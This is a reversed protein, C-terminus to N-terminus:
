HRDDDKTFHEHKFRGFFGKSLEAHFTAEPTYVPLALLEAATHDTVVGAASISTVCDSTLVRQQGAVHIILGHFIDEDRSGLVETVTGTSRGDSSM